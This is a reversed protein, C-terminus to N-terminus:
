DLSLRGHTRRRWLTNVHDMERVLKKKSLQIYVLMIIDFFTM